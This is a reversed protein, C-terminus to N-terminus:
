AAKRRRRKPKRQEAQLQKIIAPLKKLASREIQRIRERSINYIPELDSLTQKKCDIGNRARVISAEREPLQLLALRLLRKEEQSDAYEALDIANTDELAMAFTVSDSDDEIVPADLSFIYASTQPALALIYEVEEVPKKVREAIEEVTPTRGTASELETAVKRFQHYLDMAYVPIRIIGNEDVARRITQMIWWTAYTSFRGIGPKYKEAARHLGFFGEQIRDELSLGHYRKAVSVVLRLNAQVLEDIAATDGGAIRQALEQEQEASLLPPCPSLRTSASWAIM